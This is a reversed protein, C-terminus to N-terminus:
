VGLRIPDTSTGTGSSYTVDSNLYFVPRIKMKYNSFLCYAGGSVFISCSANAHSTSRSITWELDNFFIWNISTAARYDKVADNFSWGTLTWASPNAGYYYDSIYMLGIKADYTTNEAPNIIESYYTVSPTASWMNTATNGGVKWTTTAIKEKWVDSFSNYFNTNLNVKNLLSTSWTNSGYGDNITKDSLGNYNWYYLSNEDTGSAYDGDTGLLTDKSPTAKILKIKNDFVGIIRYLNDRLCKEKDSGFCVYNKTGMDGGAYRYSGDDM